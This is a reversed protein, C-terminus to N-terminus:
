YSNGNQPDWIMVASKKVNVQLSALEQYGTSTEMFEDLDTRKDLIVLIDDAFNLTIPFKLRKEQLNFYRTDM